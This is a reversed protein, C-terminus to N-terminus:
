EKDFIIIYYVIKGPLNCAEINKCDIHIMKQIHLHVLPLSENLFYVTSGVKGSNHILFYLPAVGSFLATTDIHLCRFHAQRCVFAVLSMDNELM